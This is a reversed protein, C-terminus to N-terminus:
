YRSIEASLVDMAKAIAGIQQTASIRAGTEEAGGEQDGLTWARALRPDRIIVAGTRQTGHAVAGAASPIPERPALTVSDECQALAGCADAPERAKQVAESLAVDLRALQLAQDSIREDAMMSQSTDSAHEVVLLFILDLGLFLVFLAVWTISVCLFLNMITTWGRQGLVSRSIQVHSCKYPIRKRRVLPLAEIALSGTPELFETDFAFLDPESRLASLDQVNCLGACANFSALEGAAIAVLEDPL